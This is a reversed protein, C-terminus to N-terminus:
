QELRLRYRWFVRSVRCDAHHAYFAIPGVWPIISSRHGAAHMDNLCRRLLVRGIGLGRTEPLTGMPGFFGWERNQSSHGSFAIVRGGRLALHLAPPENRLALETELRWGAGFAEAFFRDLLGGDARTARRIEVGAQALRAEDDATPFPEALDAHLNVCDKFREFGRRELFGLAETYRPDLGPTFYNGPIALVEVEDAGAGRLDALAREALATAVGRRREAGRVAFLGIWGRREKRNVVSQMFGALGGGSRAAYVRYETVGPQPNTFLKEALLDRSFRDLTLAEAALAYLAALASADVTEITCVPAGANM